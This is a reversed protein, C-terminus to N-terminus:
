SINLTLKKAINQTITHEFEKRVKGRYMEKPVGVLALLVTDEPIKPREYAKFVNWSYYYDIPKSIRHLKM